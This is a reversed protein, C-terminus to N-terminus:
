AYVSPSTLYVFLNKSLQTLGEDKVFLLFIDSPLFNVYCLCGRSILGSVFDKEGVSTACNSQNRETFVSCVSATISVM